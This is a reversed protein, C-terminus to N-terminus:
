AGRGRPSRAAPLAREAPGVRRVALEPHEERVDGGHVRALGNPRFSAPAKGLKAPSDAERLAAPRQARQVLRLAALAAPKRRGAREGLSVDHRPVGRPGGGRRLSCGRRGRGGLGHVHLGGLGRADVDGRRPGRM